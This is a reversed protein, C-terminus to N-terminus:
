EVLTKNKELIVGLVLLTVACVIALILGGGVFDLGSVSLDFGMRRVIKSLVM